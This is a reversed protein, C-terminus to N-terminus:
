DYGGEREWDRKYFDGEVIESSAKDPLGGNKKKEEAIWEKAMKVADPAIELGTAQLGHTAFLHVDYGRGCGPILASQGPQLDLTPLLDVLAPNPTGRDWPLFTGEAWLASWTDGHKEIPSSSPILNTLLENYASHLLAYAILQLPNPQRFCM